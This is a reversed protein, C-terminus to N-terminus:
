IGTIPCAVRRAVAELQPADSSTTPTVNEDASAQEVLAGFSNCITDVGDAKCWSDDEELVPLRPQCRGDRV